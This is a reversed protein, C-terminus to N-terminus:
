RVTPEVEPSIARPAHIDVLAAPLEMVSAGVTWVLLCRIPRGPYIASLVARYAAMQRLYLVPTDELRAPPARHTKYDALLIEHPLIALRDILGGIVQGAVVGSLPVEAQGAPGFLLALMPHDLVALVEGALRVPDDVGLGPQDLYALAAIEREDEALDPLHQLLTHVLQGRRFRAGTADRTALPSAAQPVNGLEVGEPRSPALPQPLAPEPPPPSPHWGPAAGAWAPLSHPVIAAASRDRTPDGSQPSAHSCREGEWPEAIVDFPAADAGLAEFGRAVHSYWCTDPVNGKTQWGCVLLRDEARTLAVYLLRNQEEAQRAVLEARLNRAAACSLEKRPAWVPLALGTEDDALWLVREDEPPLSATDPLIVLPAQLGKAGHVTMIRVADFGEGGPGEAERKVEAASQRLWHLFSQLSPAHTQAHRLSAALLEDVPEAAEPGLRAFLRARGGLPGLAESLLAHPSAHDVRRFLMDIFRYAARCEPAPSHSLAQWLTAPRGAALAMLQDDSLGGLPSTLVCALSLDDQPLLLTDCLAMLDAVAPQETLVMRDLGAVPVGRSKLARVLAPAFANRRRLLVLIDGAALDRGKSELRVGTTTQTRIWDALADALRQMASVQRLNRDPIVWPELSPADPKPTLPWLEVQGAHRSREPIHQLAGPETVGAAALPNAFVADVLDLVPATSRFSVDLTVDRWTQGSDEVRRRLVKRWFEFADPDAGQFGYISQKRDGVAFVTRAGERAGDGTFFDATLRGAIDWQAPATDQVEDLLLHDLGGDLKFLVWAAGPDVLLGATRAILDDYDLRGTAAKAQSYLQTVPTALDLLSATLDAVTAAQWGDEIARIRVQEAAICTKFEPLSPELKANVFTSHKRDEGAKTFFEERWAGWNEERLDAQLSMWDLLRQAKAAVAPSGKRAAVGVCERLDHEAQWIAHAGLQGPTTAGLVRRLRQRILDPGLAAVADLRNRDRQLREVLNGFGDLSVLGALSELAARREPTHARGLMTERAAQWAIATDREDVLEFHPSLQAELPFRRLLSQCFAHITGIRMGGPLDLVRAFLARATRTTEDTPDVGIESLQQRLDAADLSVWRGLVRQLRLAMEAAAAKTFTLCQIREPRAGALMLRLLRDTLLKTKGSGASAAVFASVMPDSAVQQAQSAREGPSLAAM